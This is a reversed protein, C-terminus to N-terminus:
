TERVIFKTFDDKAKKYEFEAKERGRIIEPNRNKDIYQLRMEHRKMRALHLVYLESLIPMVCLTLDTTMKDIKLMRPNNELVQIRNNLSYIVQNMYTFYWVCLIFAISSALIVYNMNSGSPQYIILSDMTNSLLLM